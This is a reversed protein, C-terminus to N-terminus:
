IGDTWESYFVIWMCLKADRDVHVAQRTRLCTATSCGLKPRNMSLPRYGADRCRRGLSTTQM